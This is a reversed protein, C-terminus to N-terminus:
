IKIDTQSFEVKRLSFTMLTKQTIEGGCFFRKMGVCPKPHFRFFPDQKRPEMLMVSASRSPLLRHKFIEQAGNRNENEQLNFHNYHLFCHYSLLMIRKAGVCTHLWLGTDEIRIYHTFWLGWARSGIGSSNFAFIYVLINRSILNNSLCKMKYDRLHM